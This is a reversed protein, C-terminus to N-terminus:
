LFAMGAEPVAAYPVVCDGLLAAAAALAKAVMAPDESTM